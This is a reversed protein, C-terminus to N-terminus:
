ISEINIPNMFVTDEYTILNPSCRAFLGAYQGNVMHVGYNIYNNIIGEKKNKFRISEKTMDYSLLDEASLEEKKAYYSYVPENKIDIFKQLIFKHSIESATYIGKMWDNISLAKGVYVGESYRTFVEKLVWKDKNKYLERIADDKNDFTLIYDKLNITYPIYQRIFQVENHTLIDKEKTLLWLLAFIDKNQGLIARPENIILLKGSDYLNQVKEYEEFENTFEMPFKRFLVNYEKGFAFLSKNRVEVNNVGVIDLEYGEAEFLAKYYHGLTIEEYKYTDCVLAIRPSNKASYYRNFQEKFGNIFIEKFRDNPNNDVDFYTEIDLEKHGSPKCYNIEAIYFRNHKSKFIDSRALFFNEIENKNKLLIEKNPIDIKYGAIKDQILMNLVKIVIRNAEETIYKMLMFDNKNINIIESNILHNERISPIIVNDYLMENHVQKLSTNRDKNM